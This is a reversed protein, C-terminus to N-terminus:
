SEFHALESLLMYSLRIHFKHITTVFKVIMLELAFIFLHAWSPARLISSVPVYFLVVSDEIPTIFVFANTIATMATM